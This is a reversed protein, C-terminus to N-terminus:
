YGRVRDYLQAPTEGRMLAGMSSVVAEARARCSAYAANHPTIIIRPHRWAPSEAPLPETEFVDLVATSIHGRDLAAILDPMVIATGRGANVVGAGAPLWGLSRANLIGRTEPTDPLLSVVIDCASLFEPLQEMGAFLAIGAATRPTRTWGALQFGLAGLMRACAQGLTGYGLIGVRKDFATHPPEFGDWRSEAQAARMRPLDRLIALAAFCVYEGMTQSTETSAMRVIPLHEPVSPDRIIHEVGAASSFIVRLNRYTAIRGADPEWVLVYTVADPDIDPDHWGRVEIDPALAAFAAQWEPLAKEGGSKVLLLDRNHQM